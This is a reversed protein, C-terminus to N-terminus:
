CGINIQMYWYISRDPKRITNSKKNNEMKKRVGDTGEM